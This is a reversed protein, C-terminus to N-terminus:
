ASVNKLNMQAIRKQEFSMTEYGEIKGPETATARGGANLTDVGQSNMAKMVKEFFRVAGSTWLMSAVEKAQAPNDANASVWKTVADIRDTSKDGLKAVEAAIHQKRQSDEMQLRALDLKLLEGFGDQSLGLKAAAERAPGLLPNNPDLGFGDPMQFDKPLELKYGDPKEPIGAKRAAEAAKLEGAEKLRTALDAFKVGSKDDWLDDPIGEPRKPAADSAAAAAGDGEAAVSSPESAAPLSSPSGAAPAAPPAASTLPSAIPDSTPTPTPTEVM